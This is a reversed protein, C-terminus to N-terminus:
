KSQKEYTQLWYSKKLSFFFFSKNMVSVNFFDFTVTVHNFLIINRIIAKIQSKRNM